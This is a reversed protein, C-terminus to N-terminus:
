KTYYNITPEACIISEIIKPDKNKNKYKKYLFFSIIIISCCGVFGVTIYIIVLIDSNNSPLSSSTTPIPPPTKTSFCEPNNIKDQPLSDWLKSGNCTDPIDICYLHSFDFADQGLYLTCGKMNIRELPTNYFASDEIFKLSEPIAIENLTKIQSFSSPGIYELNENLIINSISSSSFSYDEIFILTSPLIITDIYKNSMFSSHGVRITGEPISYIHSMNNDFTKRGNPFQILKHENNSFLVGDKSYFNKNNIDVVFEIINTCAFACAGIEIVTEPIYIINRIDLCYQFAQGGISKLYPPITINSLYLANTFAGAEISEIFVPFSISKLSIANYFTDIGIHKMFPKIDIQENKSYMGFSITKNDSISYLVDQYASFKPIKNESTSCNSSRLIDCVHISEVSAMKFPNNGIKQLTSPLTISVTIPSQCNAFAYSGISELSMPFKSPIILKSCLAFASQGILKLNSSLNLYCLNSCSMFAFEGIEFVSNPLTISSLLNCLKFASNDISNLNQPFYIATLKSCNYFSDSQIRSISTFEHNIYRLDATELNFCSQFISSGLYLCSSLNVTNLNTQTFCGIGIQFVNELNATTLKTCFSFAYDGITIPRQTENDEPQCRVFNLTNISLCYQFCAYPVFTIAEPIEILPGIRYCSQFSMEGLEELQKPLQIYKLLICNAFAMYMISKINNSLSVSELRRCDYFCSAPIVTVRSPIRINELNRCNDFAGIGIKEITTPLYINKISDLSRFCHDGIETVTFNQDDYYIYKPVNVVELGVFSNVCKLSLKPETSDGIISFIFIQYQFENSSEPNCVYLQNETENQPNSKDPTITAFTFICQYFLLM